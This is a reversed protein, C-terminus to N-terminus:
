VSGRTEGIELRNSFLSSSLLALDELNLTSGVITGNYKEIVLEHSLDPQIQLMPSGSVSKPNKLCLKKRLIAFSETDRSSDNIDLWDEM